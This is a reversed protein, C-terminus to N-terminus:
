SATTALKSRSVAITLFYNAILDAAHGIINKAHNNEFLCRNDKNVSDVALVGFCRYKNNDPDFYRIPAVITSNYQSQWKPNENLYTDGLASLDDCAYVNRRDRITHIFATNKDIAYIRKAIEREGRSNVSTEPDRYVTILWQNSKKLEKQEDSTLKSQYYGSIADSTLTLKVAVCLPEDLDFCEAGYLDRLIKKVEMTISQCMKTFTQREELTPSIDEPVEDIYHSFLADRFQHAIGHFNEFQLYLRQKSLKLHEAQRELFFERRIYKSLLLGSVLLLAVFAILDRVIILLPIAEPFRWLIVTLVISIVSLFASVFSLTRDISGFFYKQLQQWDFKLKQEHVENTM